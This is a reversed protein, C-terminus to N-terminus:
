FARAEKIQDIFFKLIKNVEMLNLLKLRMVMREEYEEICYPHDCKMDRRESFDNYLRM